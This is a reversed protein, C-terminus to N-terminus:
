FEIITKVDTGTYKICISTNKKGVVVDGNENINSLIKAIEDKGNFIAISEIENNLLNTSEM